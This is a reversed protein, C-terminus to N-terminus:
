SYNSLMVLSILAIAATETRLRNVGLGVPKAGAKILVDVENPTFDGEPGVIMVIKMRKGGNLTSEEAGSTLSQAAAAATVDIEERQDEKLDQLVSLAPAGGAAALLALDAGKVMEVLREITAPEHIKLGHARLSQKTAAIAVRELRGKDNEDVMGDEDMSAASARGKTSKFKSGLIPSSSRETVLPLFDRAGIETAKEVLWESRGGKLTLCAVALTLSHGRWPEFTPPATESAWARWRGKVAEVGSIACRVVSGMGDCIEVLDGEKLRLSKIVHKAEEGELLYNNYAM